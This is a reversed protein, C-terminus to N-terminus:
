QDINLFFVLSPFFLLNIIFVKSSINCRHALCIYFDFDKWKVDVYLISKVFTRGTTKNNWDAVLVNKSLFFYSFLFTKFIVKQRELFVFLEASETSKNYGWFANSPSGGGKFKKAKFKQEKTIILLKPIATRQDSVCRKVSVLHRWSDMLPSRTVDRNIVDYYTM